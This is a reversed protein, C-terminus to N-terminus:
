EVWVAEKKKTRIAASTKKTQRALIAAACLLV